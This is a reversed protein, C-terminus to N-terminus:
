ERCFLHIPELLGTALDDFDACIWTIQNDPIGAGNVVVLQGLTLLDSRYNTLATYFVTSLDSSITSCISAICRGLKGCFIIQVQLPLQKM